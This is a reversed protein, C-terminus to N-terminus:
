PFSVAPSLPKDGSKGDWWSIFPKEWSDDYMVASHGPMAHLQFTWLATLHLTIVARASLHQRKM